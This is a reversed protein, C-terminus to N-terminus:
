AGVNAYKKGNQRSQTLDPARLFLAWHYKFLQAVLVGKEHREEVLAHILSSAAFIQLLLPRRVGQRLELRYGILPLSHHNVGVSFLM